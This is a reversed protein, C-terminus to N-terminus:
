LPPTGFVGGEVLQYLFVELGEQGVDLKLGARAQWLKDFLLEIGKELAADQGVAEQAQTAGVTGMFLEHGETALTATEARATAGPAHRLGGGVQDIVDDGPHRHALPHERKRDRKAQQESCMRFQERGDQLDDVPDNGCKQDLLCSELAGFGVGAGDREDLTEARGGGFRRSRNQVASPQGWRPSPCPYGPIIEVDMQM